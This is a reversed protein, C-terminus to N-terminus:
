GCGCGCGGGCRPFACVCTCLHPHPHVHALLREGVSPPHCFMDGHDLAITEECWTFADDDEVGNVWGARM